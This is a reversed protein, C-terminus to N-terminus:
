TTVSEDLVGRDRAAITLQVRSRIDLKRFVARLHTNVTHASVGLEQAASRNTHGQVILDVVRLETPTLAAWGSQPRPAGPRAAVRRRLIDGVSRSGGVAGVRDYIGRAESLAAAADEHRDRTSLAAGLDKLADALLLPRPSRRLTAVAGALLAVDDDLLGHIQQATGAFSVVGPNRQAALDAVRAALAAFQLDGATLGLGALVRMWPASWQWPDRTDGSDNILPRLIALGEEVGGTAATFMGHMVRMRLSRTDARARERAPALLAAAREVEGRYSAVASLVMTANLWLDTGGTEEALQLVKAAGAEAADLRGLDHDQWMQAYLVSPLHVHTRDGSHGIRNLLAQADDYRDLHQLTRIEEAQYSTSSVERLDAFRQLAVSHRGENRATEILAVLSMLQGQHDHYRRSDQLANRALAEARAAPHNGSAALARASTLCARLENSVGDRGAARHARREMAATDGAYWLARCAQVEIRAAIEPDDAATLLEDAIGLADRERRVNVLTEVTREGARLWLRTRPSTLQLAQQALEAAQEPMSVQCQRAADLLAMVADEDDRDAGARLHVAAALSSGGQGIIHGACERHLRRRDDGDIGAYVADRILDHPLSMADDFVTLLGSAAAEQAVARVETHSMGALLEAADPVTLGRAWVASLRILAAAPASLGTLRSRVGLSLETHLDSISEGREHRRALGDIVQVAFFPNGGVGALLNRTPASVEAGLRANALTVIEDLPLPALSIQTVAVGDQVGALIEALPADPLPRSTMVWVVPSDALRSPLVRLAFRTLRDAWQVDDVAILIPSRRALETLLVSIRDVLWLPKDYLPALAAFADDDLLPQAGSRLSVLLPAGAAIQDGQEAKGIGVRLSSRRADEAVAALVASKGIGPEGTVVIVSGRGTASARRMLSLASALAGDRGVLHPHHM